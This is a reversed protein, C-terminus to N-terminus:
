SESGGAQAVNGNGSTGAASRRLAALVETEDVRLLRALTAVRAPTVRTTLGREIKSYAAHGIGLAEAMAGQTQGARERLERLTVADDPQDQGALLDAVELELAAALRTVSAPDPRRRGAEYHSVATGDVGAREGLQEQTLGAAERGQRLRDASFTQLGRMRGAHGVAMRATRAPGQPAPPGPDALPRPRAYGARAARV